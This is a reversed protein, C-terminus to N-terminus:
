FFTYIFVRRLLIVGLWHINLVNLSASSFAIRIDYCLIQGSNLFEDTLGCRLFPFLNYYRLVCGVYGFYWHKSLSLIKSPEVCYRFDSSGFQQQNFLWHPSSTQSSFLGIIYKTGPYSFRIKSGIIFRNQTFRIRMIKSGSYLPQVDSAIQSSQRLYCQLNSCYLLSNIM